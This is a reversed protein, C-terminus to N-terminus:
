TPGTLKCTRTNPRTLFEATSVCDTWFSSFGSDLIALSPIPHDIRYIYRYSATLTDLKQLRWTGLIDCQRRVRKARESFFQIRGELKRRQKELERDVLETRWVKDRLKERVRELEDRGEEDIEM